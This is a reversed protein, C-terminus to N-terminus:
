FPQTRKAVLYLGGMIVTMGLYAQWGLFEDFFLYALLVSFAPILLKFSSAVGADLHHLSEAFLVWVLATSVIGMYALGFFATWSHIAFVSPEQFACFVTLLLGSPLLTFLTYALGGIKPILRKKGILTLLAAGLAALLAYLMGQWEAHAFFGLLSEGKLFVLIVGFIGAAIGFLKTLSVREMGLAIAGLAVMFPNTNMLISSLGAGVEKVSLMLLLSTLLVGTLSAFIVWFSDVRNLSVGHAGRNKILYLPLLFLIAFLIRYLVVTIPSHDTLLFRSVIYQSSWVLM